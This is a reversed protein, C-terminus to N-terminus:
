EYASGTISLNAHTIRRILHKVSPLITGQLFNKYELEGGRGRRFTILTHGNYVYSNIKIGVKKKSPPTVLIASMSFSFEQSEVSEAAHYELKMQPEGRTQAKRFSATQIKSIASHIQKFVTIALIGPRTEFTTFPPLGEYTKITPPRPVGTDDVHSPRDVVITGRKARSVKPLPPSRPPYNASLRNHTAFRNAAFRNAEANAKAEKQFEDMSMNSLNSDVALGLADKIQDQSIHDISLKPDQNYRFTRVNMQGSERSMHRPTPLTSIRPALNPAPTMPAPTMAPAGDRIYQPVVSKGPTLDLRPSATRLDDVEQMLRHLARPLETKDYTHKQCWRSHLCEQVTWRDDPVNRICNWILQQARKKMKDRCHGLNWFADHNDRKVPLWHDDKIHGRENGKEYMARRFPPYGTLLIFLVVGCSFIDVSKNYTLKLKKYKKL